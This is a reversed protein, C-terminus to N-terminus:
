KFYWREVDSISYGLDNKRKVITPDADQNELKKKIEDLKKDLL